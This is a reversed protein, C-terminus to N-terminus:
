HLAQRARTATVSIYIERKEVNNSLHLHTKVAVRSRRKRVVMMKM